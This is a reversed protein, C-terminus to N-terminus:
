RRTSIRSCIPAASPRAVTRLTWTGSPATFSGRAPEAPEGEVGHGRVLERHQLLLADGIGRTEIAVEPDHRLGESQAERPHEARWSRRAREVPREAMLVTVRSPEQLADVRLEALPDLFGHFHGPEPQHHLHAPAM